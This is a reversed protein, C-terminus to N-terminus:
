GRVAGRRALTARDSASLDLRAAIGFQKEAEDKKGVYFLAEGWKLHLRGWNPAYRNAEEFKALALDSRNELMLAEGWMELPDAFHPGKENAVKFKAIAAEPAGERLMMEGWDAWMFPISPASSVARAFWYNAGPWNKQLMDVRGRFRLCTDCDLPTKDIWTHAAKFDGVGASALALSPYAGTTLVLEAPRGIKRVVPLLQSFEDFAKRWRQLLLDSGAVTSSSNLSDEADGAERPSEELADACAADHTLACAQLRQLTGEMSLKQQPSAEQERAPAFVDIGDGTALAIEADVLPALISRISPNVFRAVGRRVREAQQKDAGLAAELHQRSSEQNGIDNWAVPNDPDAEAAEHYFALARSNDGDHVAGSALGIYSWGRDEVSGSRSLDHFIPIAEAYRGHEAAYIAYRYPQTGRYVAEAAKQMLTDLDAEKGNVVTTADDGARATVAIGSTTRWVEGRVHTEHGLWDALYRDFEGISVGTEPIEVKIDKSWASAYSSPARFSYTATQLASLKDQMQAAIVQGTLGKAALDPPVSFAEIVVGDDQYARWVAAGIAAVVLGAVAAAMIQLVGRLQDNFRRWRLHSVELEEERKLRHIQLELLRSHNRLYEESAPHHPTALAMHAALSDGAPENQGRDEDEFDEAM